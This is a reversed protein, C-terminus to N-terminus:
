AAKATAPSLAAEIDALAASLWERQLDSDHARRNELWGSIKDAAGIATANMGSAFEYRMLSRFQEADADGRALKAQFVDRLFIM